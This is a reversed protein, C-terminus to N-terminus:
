ADSLGGFAALLSKMLRSVELSMIAFDQDFQQAESEVDADQARELIMDEFKLRTVTLDAAIVCSLTDNWVVGLKKVQKGATLHAKIEDSGLDQGKCRVVNSDELPNFLECDQHIVFQEPAKQKELWRTMVDSPAHQVDPLAIPLSGISDRLLTSLDEAVSASSTNIILLNDQLALYAHTRRTRSFARPLLAAIVDDKLQAKEKRNIKRAQKQEIEAVKEVLADNIVSAPLLKEDKRACFMIYDGVAHTLAEHEGGIPSVWGTRTRDFTTGSRFAHEALKEELAEASLDLPSTFRYFRINKFWM